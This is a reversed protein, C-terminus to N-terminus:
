ITMEGEDIFDEAIIFHENFFNWSMYHRPSVTNKMILEFRRGQPDDRDTDYPRFYYVNGEICFCSGDNMRGNKIAIAKLYKM